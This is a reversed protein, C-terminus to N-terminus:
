EIQVHNNGVGGCLERDGPFRSQSVASRTTAFLGTNENHATYVSAETHSQQTYKRNVFWLYIDYDCNNIVATNGLNAAIDTPLPKYPAANTDNIENILNVKISMM